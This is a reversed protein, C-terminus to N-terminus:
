GHDKQDKIRWGEEPGGALEYGLARVAALDGTLGRGALKEALDRRAEAPKNQWLDSKASMREPTIEVVACALAEKHDPTILPLDARGEHKAVLANLAGAKVEGDPLVRATGRIIVCHYLQHVNCPQPDESFGAELYALPVDVEFCVRPDRAINDLKEGKRACHFYVRGEHFVFNVPTIYPYGDAGNSALRGINTSALVKEMERPDTVQCHARRM